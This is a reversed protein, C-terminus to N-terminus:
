PTAPKGLQREIKKHLVSVGFVPAEQTGTITIPLETGAGHKSFLPDVARLFFSKVGTTTESLRARMRLHGQMDIKQGHIDYTGALEVGAGPVSFTLKSFTIVSNKLVFRGRLDTVASGADEDEPKGEAHRSFSELKERIEASAWRGNTIAFNGDLNMKDIVKRKGPPLSLKAVVRIPGRLFPRDSNIALQLIDEIRAKPTTVDLTILHGQGPFNIVSGSAVIESQGLISHVPHLQTDGNTGDVTASYDTHLPMPKGANDLSFDPTDTEGNVELRDLEGAYRGTSSLIGAIGPFPGLDAQDFAYTGSVATSGPDDGNWPGFEGSTAIEGKPKANTLTGEFAFPKHAGVEHLKLDHIEWDLPETGPKPSLTLLEMDEIEITGVVVDAPNLSGAEHPAAPKRQERPPISIVMRKLKIREIRRPARFVGFLGLSFSFKEIRILPPAQPTAWYHLSLGEGSVTMLPFVRVHFDGLEVNSQFKQELLRVIWDRTRLEASRKKAAAVALLLILLTLFSAALALLFKRAAPVAM